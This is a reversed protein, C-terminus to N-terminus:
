YLNFNYELQIYSPVPLGNLTAPEFKIQKAVKICQETLGNTLSRVVLIQQVTGDAAFVAKLVVTGVIGEVRAEETYHPEPKSIIKAKTTVDRGLYVQTSEESAHFELIKLQERWFKADQVDSLLNVYQALSAAAERYRLRQNFLTEVPTSSRDSAKLIMSAQTKLLYAPAFDPALAIVADANAIAEDREDKRLRVVGLTYLARTNRPDVSLAKRAENEGDALGNRRVLAFGLTSHAEAALDPRISIAKSFAKGANKLDGLQIYGIGLYYWAEGNTESERVVEKLLKVAELNQRQLLLQSASKVEPTSPEPPNQSRAIGYSAAIFLVALMALGLRSLYRNLLM